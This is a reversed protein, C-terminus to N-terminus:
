PEDGRDPMCAAASGSGTLPYERGDILWVESGDDKAVMHPIRDGWSQKSLRSTWVDPSEIVHENTSIFKDAM